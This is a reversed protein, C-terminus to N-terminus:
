LVRDHLVHVFHLGGSPDIPNDTSSSIEAYNFISFDLLIKEKLPKPFHELASM